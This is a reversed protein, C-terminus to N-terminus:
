SMDAYVSCNIFYNMEKCHMLSWFKLEKQVSHFTPQGSYHKNNNILVKHDLTWNEFWATKRSNVRDVLLVKEFEHGFFM